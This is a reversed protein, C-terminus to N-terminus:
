GEEPPPGEGPFPLPRRGDPGEPRLGQRRPRQQVQVPGRAAFPREGLPTRLSEGVGNLRLQLDEDVRRFQDRRQLQYATVGFGALVLVLILGYWVQIRW